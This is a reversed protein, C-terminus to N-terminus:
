MTLVGDRTVFSLTNIFPGSSGFHWLTLKKQLRGDKFSDAAATGTVGPHVGLYPFSTQELCFDMGSAEALVIDRSRSLFVDPGNNAGPLVSFAVTRSSAISKRLQELATSAQL